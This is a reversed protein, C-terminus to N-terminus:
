IQGKSTFITVKIGSAELCRIKLAADPSMGDAPKWDAVVTEGKEVYVYDIVLKSWQVALGDRGITMLPYVVQRRLDSIEGARQLMELSAYKKFEGMSDFTEFDM